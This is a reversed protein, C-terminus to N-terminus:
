GGDVSEERVVDDPMFPEFRVRKLNASAIQLAYLLLAARKLDILDRVIADAVLMLACQIANADELPPLPALGQAPRLMQAHAYCYPRQTLAPSGCRTGDAKVHQCRPADHAARMRRAHEAFAQQITRAPSTTQPPM